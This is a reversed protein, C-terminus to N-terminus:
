IMQMNETIDPIMAYQLNNNKNNIFMYYFTVSLSIISITSVIKYNFIFNLNDINEIPKQIKINVKEILSKSQIKYEKIVAEEDLDLYKAYSRIYGLTFVGGPTKEYDDNEIAKLINLSINLDNAVDQLALKKSIRYEKLYEGILKM